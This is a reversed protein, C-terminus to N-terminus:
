GEFLSSVFWGVTGAVSSAAGILFAIKYKKTYRDLNTELMAQDPHDPNVWATVSAGEPYRAVTEEAETKPWNIDVMVIRKSQYNAGQYEYAYEVRPFYTIMGGGTVPSRYGHRSRLTEEGVQCSLVEGQVPAWTRSRRQQRRMREVYLPMAIGVSVSLLSLLRVLLAADKNALLLVGVVFAIGFAWWAKEWVAWFARTPTSPAASQTM